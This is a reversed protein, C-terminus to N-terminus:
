IIETDYVMTKANTCLSVNYEATVDTKQMREEVTSFDNYELLGNKDKLFYTFWASSGQNQIRRVIGVVDKRIM